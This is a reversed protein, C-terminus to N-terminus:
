RRLDKAELRARPLPGELGRHGINTSHPGDAKPLCVTTLPRRWVSSGKGFLTWNRSHRPQPPLRVKQKPPWVGPFRGTFPYGLHM